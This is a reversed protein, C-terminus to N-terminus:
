LRAGGNGPQSTKNKLVHDRTNWAPRWSVECALTVKMEQEEWKQRGLVSSVPLEHRVMGLKDEIYEYRGQCV